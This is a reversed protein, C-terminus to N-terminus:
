GDEYKEKMLARFYPCERYKSACFRALHIKQDKQSAFYHALTTKKMLGECSISKAEWKHRLYFPCRM